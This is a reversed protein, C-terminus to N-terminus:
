TTHSPGSSTQVTSCDSAGPPTPGGLAHPAKWACEPCREIKLGRFDYQCAPCRDYRVIISLRLKCGECAADGLRLVQLRKCRPCTLSISHGVPVLSQLHLRRLIEYGLAACVTLAVAVGVVRVKLDEDVDKLYAVSLGILVGTVISLGIALRRLWALSPVPKVLSILSAISLGMTALGILLAARWLKDIFRQEWVAALGAGLAVAAAAMCSAGLWRGWPAEMLRAGPFAMVASMLLLLSTVFARAEADYPLLRLNWTAALALVLNMPVLVLLTREFWPWSRKEALGLLVVVVGAHVGLSLLSALLRNTIESFTGFLFTAVALFGAGLLATLSAILVQRRINM